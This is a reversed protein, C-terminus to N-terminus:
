WICYFWLLIHKQSFTSVTQLKLIIQCYFSFTKLTNLSFNSSFQTYQMYDM